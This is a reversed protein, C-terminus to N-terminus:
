DRVSRSNKRYIQYLGDLVLYKDLVIPEECYAVIKDAYAGTAVVTMRDGLQKKFRRAMGDVMSAYGYILGSHMAEMTGTSILDGAEQIGVRPLLAAHDCLAALAVEAGPFLAKGVLAGSKDLASFSVATNMDVVLCPSPYKKAASACGCVIDSGFMAPNQSKINLGTKLGPSVLYVKGECFSSLADRITETLEPVVSSVIGGAWKKNTSGHPRLLQEMAIIYQDRTWRLETSMQISFELKDGKYGGISIRTNELHLVLIM